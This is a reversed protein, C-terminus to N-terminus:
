SNDNIYILANALTAFDSDTNFYSVSFRVTGSPFTGLFRHADPACHLGTRVAVEHESLVQGIGDSGYGDFICSVVGITNTIGDTLALKINHFSQLLELLRVHNQREMNLIKDIGINKSWKLAANLGAIAMINPSGVEYREPVTDPLTRNASDVGTGGFMLPRLKADSACIFGAIGLPAYLTKHGAYVAYDINTDSLDTNILGMTQCMDIVTAARHYKALACIEAIPAIVGCVNSAHSVVVLNPTNDAFQYKIKELDYIFDAKDVALRIVNLRKNGNIHHLTRLVANHEFPSIYINSGVPLEVGFLIMNIAETATHTFVVRRNPCHNLELLLRRTEAVLASAKSALNYQGRGVNVGCERYFKDTFAYVEEPKPFTTAANDFYATNNLIDV